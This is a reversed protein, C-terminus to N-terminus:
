QAHHRHVADAMRRVMDGVMEASTGFNLRVHEAGLRGYDAGPALAVRGRDLFTRAPEDGLGLARCNLWALYSAQPPTWVIEPLQETLLKGLRARNADLRALVADLWADGEAFAVESALVGLLGAHEALAPLRDAAARARDSATVLLGAKLGALNFAKSASTLAFGCSRAADSVELWSVHTAGSLALPAHIEDAIVWVGRDACLEALRELEPRPLVRGTPNHPSALLFVRTGRDFEARLGDFDISGDDRLPAERVVLGVSPLDALFPRYAPTALAVSRSAGALTRALELVGVMVDPVLRVQEPDVRWGLRRAALGAFADALRPIRAHAYGLDHRNIAAHLTGAVQPAIPFDMEAVTAVLVDPAYGHWKLSRRAHLEALPPVRLDIKTTTRPVADLM